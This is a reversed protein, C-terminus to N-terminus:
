QDGPLPDPKHATLSTFAAAAATVRSLSRDFSPLWRACLDSTPYYVSGRVQEVELGASAVLNNLESATWFRAARWTRSGLWGAIRRRAAWLSIRGLEGIVLRGGPRLVRVMERVTREAESVFCLMTVLIASAKSSMAQARCVLVIPERAIEDLEDLRREIEGLPFNRAGPIHGLSGDFDSASRVDVITVPSGSVKLQRLDDVDIWSQDPGRWM